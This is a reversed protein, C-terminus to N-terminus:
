SIAPIHDFFIERVYAPIQGSLERAHGAPPYQYGSPGTEEAVIQDLRNKGPVPVDIQGVTYADGYVVIIQPAYRAPKSVKLAMLVKHEHLVIDRDGQGRLGAVKLINDV